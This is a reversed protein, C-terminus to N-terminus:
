IEANSASFVICSVQAKVKLKNWEITREDFFEDYVAAIDLRVSSSLDTNNYTNIKFNNILTVQSDKFLPLGAIAISNSEISKAFNIQFQAYYRSLLTINAINYSNHIITGAPTGDTQFVIGAKVKGFGSVFPITQLQWILSNNVPNKDSNEQLAIYIVGEYSVIDGIQYQQSALWKKANTKIAQSIVGEFSFIGNTREQSKIRLNEFITNTSDDISKEVNYQIM